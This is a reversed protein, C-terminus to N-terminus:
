YLGWKWRVEHTTRVTWIGLHETRLDFWFTGKLRQIHMQVERAEIELCKWIGGCFAMLYSNMATVFFGVYIAYFFFL